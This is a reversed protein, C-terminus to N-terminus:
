LLRSETLEREWNRMEYAQLTYVQLGLARQLAPDTRPKFPTRRRHLPDLGSARQQGRHQTQLPLFAQHLPTAAQVPQRVLGPSTNASLM